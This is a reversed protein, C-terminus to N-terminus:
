KGLYQVIASGDYSGSMSYAKGGFEQEKNFIASDWGNVGGYGMDDVSGILGGYWGAGGAGADLKPDSGGLKSPMLHDSSTSMRGELGNKDYNGGGSGAAAAVRTGKYYIDTCGGGSGSAFCEGGGNFGGPVTCGKSTKSDWYDINAKGEGGTFIVVTDGANLDMTGILVGAEADHRRDADGGGNAGYLSFRYKGTYPVEFYQAGEYYKYKWETMLPLVKAKAKFETEPDDSDLIEIMEDYTVTLIQSQDLVSKNDYKGYLSSIYAKHDTNKGDVTCILDPDGTPTFPNSPNLRYSGEFVKNFGEDTVEYVVDNASLGSSFSDLFLGKSENYTLFAGELDIKNLGSKDNFSLITKGFSDQEKHGIIEPIGDKNLDVMTFTTWVVRSMADIEDYYAKNWSIQETLTEDPEKGDDEGIDNSEEKSLDEDDHEGSDDENESVSMGKESGQSVGLVLDEVKEPFVFLLALIGISLMIIIILFALLAWKKKQKAPKSVQMQGNLDNRQETIVKPTTKKDIPSKSRRSSKKQQSHKDIKYQPAQGIAQSLDGSLIETKEYGDSVPSLIDEGPAGNSSDPDDKKHKKDESQEAGCFKCFKSGDPIESGCKYCFM